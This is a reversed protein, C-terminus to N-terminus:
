LKLSEEDIYISVQKQFGTKSFWTGAESVASM